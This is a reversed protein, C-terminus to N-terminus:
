LFVPCSFCVRSLGAVKVAPRAQALDGPLVRFSRPPGHGAVNAWPQGDPRAPGLTAPQCSFAVRAFTPSTTALPNSM